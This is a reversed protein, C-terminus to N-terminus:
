GAEPFDVAGPTEVRSLTEVLALVDGGSPRGAWAARRCFGWVIAPAALVWEGIVSLPRAVSRARAVLITVVILGVAAWAGVLRGDGRVLWLATGALGLLLFGLMALYRNLARAHRWFAPTGLSLRLVQGYGVMLGTRFRRWCERLATREATHHTGVTLPIRVVTYGRARLREALEAEEHSIVLPNFSGVEELASRRYLANGGLQYAEEVTEGMGFFDATEAVAVGDRYHIERLKGGVGAVTPQQEMLDVAARVWAPEIETDGDVFLIYKSRTLEQGALRGLAATCRVGPRVVAVRVPYGCAIAVTGDESRSDVLVASAGAFPALARLVSEVSRAVWAAENRTIIVAALVPEAEPANRGHTHL